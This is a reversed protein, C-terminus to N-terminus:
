KIATFVLCVPSCLEIKKGTDILEGTTKDRKFIVVENSFQHAVLLFNGTPDIAFNRPGDGLTSTRSVFQLKGNKVIKFCSIDNAEKRNTAYLFQEDPSIHIDAATFKEKYGDALVTTEQVLKLKGNKYKLVSVTGDLEQLLYAKKGDKSFTFHRPGSGAKFAISDKLKLPERTNPDYLYSYVKDNGLNTALVFKYEPTFQVMHTHSKDQRKSNIGKGFQKAVQRVATVGGDNNKGFVAVSGGSYNATIVNKEDNIIYCPGASTTKEKNIFDLKGSLAHYRFASVYSDIGNENASYVVKNDGSVSIFSPNDTKNNTANKFRFDGTNVDFDYVYVGKSDCSKTYTGILLNFKNEQAQFSICFLQVIVLLLVKKM